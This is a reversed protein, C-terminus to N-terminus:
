LGLTTVAFAESSRQLVADISERARALNTAAGSISGRFHERDLLQVCTVGSALLLTPIKEVEIEPNHRCEVVHSWHRRWEAWRAHRRSLDDYNGAVLTLRRHPAAWASLQEIVAPESLPWDAFNPDLLWVHRVGAEAVQKFALRIAGQFDGRSTIVPNPQEDM